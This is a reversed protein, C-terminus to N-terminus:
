GYKSEEDRYRPAQRILETEPQLDAPNSELQPNPEPRSMYRMKTTSLTYKWWLLLPAWTVVRLWGQYDGPVPLFQNWSGRRNCIRLHNLDRLWGETDVSETDTSEVLQMSYVYHKARLHDCRPIHLRPLHHPWQEDERSQWELSDHPWAWHGHSHPLM